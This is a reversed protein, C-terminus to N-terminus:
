LDARSCLAYVETKLILLDLALPMHLSIGAAKEAPPSPADAASREFTSTFWFRSGEGLRSEVGIEGGLREVLRRCIALGLGSGGFRRAVSVDSQIFPDFIAGLRDPPSASERTSSEFRLLPPRGAGREAVTLRVEGRETFKVANGVLNLLIQRLKGDDGVIPPFRPTELDLQFRAKRAALPLM